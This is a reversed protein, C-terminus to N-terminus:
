KQEALRNLLSLLERYRPIDLSEQGGGNRLIKNIAWVEGERPSKWWSYFSVDSSWQGMGNKEWDKSLRKTFEKEPIASLKEMVTRTEMWLKSLEPNDKYELALKVETAANSHVGQYSGGKFVNIAALESSAGAAQMVEKAHELSEGSGRYTGSQNTISAQRSRMVYEGASVIDPKSGTKAALFQALGEHNGVNQTVDDKSGPKMVRNVIAINGKADIIYPYTGDDLGNLFKKAEASGAPFFKADRNYRAVDLVKQPHPDFAGELVPMKKKSVVEETKKLATVAVDKQTQKAAEVSGKTNLYKAEVGVDNAVKRLGSIKNIYPLLSPAALTAAVFCNTEKNRAQAIPSNPNACVNERLLDESSQKVMLEELETSCSQRLSQGMVGVTHAQSVGAVTLVGKQMSTLNKIATVGNRARTLWSMGTTIARPAALVDAVGGTMVSLAVFAGIEGVAQAPGNIKARTRERDEGRSLLCSEAEFYFQAAKDAPNTNDFINQRLDPLATIRTRIKKFDCRSSDTKDALCSFDDRNEQYAKKYAERNKTLQAVIAKEITASSLDYQTQFNGNRPSSKKTVAKELFFEGRIWPVTDTLRNIEINIPDCDEKLKKQVAESFGHGTRQNASESYIKQRCALYGAVLAEIQLLTEQTKQVYSKLREQKSISCGLSLKKAAECKEQIEPWVRSCDIGELMAQSPLVSDIAAIEDVILSSATALKTGSEYFRVKLASQKEPALDKCQEFYSKYEPNIQDKFKGSLYHDLNKGQALLKGYRDLNTQCTKAESPMPWSWIARKDKFDDDVWETLTTPCKDKLPASQKQTINQRIGTSVDRAFALASTISIFLIIFQFKM